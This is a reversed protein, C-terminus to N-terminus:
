FPQGETNLGIHSGPINKAGVESGPENKVSQRIKWHKGSRNQNMADKLSEDALKSCGYLYYDIGDQMGSINRSHVVDGKLPDKFLFLDKEVDIGVLLIFHPVSAFGVVGALILPGHEELRTIWSDATEPWDYADNWVESVSDRLKFDDKPDFAIYNRYWLTAKPIAIKQFRYQYQKEIWYKILSVLCYRGCTPNIIPLRLLRGM